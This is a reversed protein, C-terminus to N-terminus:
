EILHYGLTSNVMSTIASLAGNVATRATQMSIGQVAALKRVAEGCAADLADRSDDKGIAARSRQHEIAAIEEAIHTLQQKACRSVAPWKKKLPKEAAHMMIPVVDEVLLTM